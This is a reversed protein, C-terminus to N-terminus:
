PGGQSGKDPPTAAMLKRKRFVHDAFLALCGACILIAPVWVIIAPLPVETIYPHQRPFILYQISNTVLLTFMAIMLYYLFQDLIDLTAVRESVGNIHLLRRLPIVVILLLFLTHQFITAPYGLECFSYWLLCLTLGTFCGQAVVLMAPFWDDARAIWRNAWPARGRPNEREAWASWLMMELALGAGLASWIGPGAQPGKVLLLVVATCVPLAGLWQTHRVHTIGNRHSPKFEEFHYMPPFLVAPLM